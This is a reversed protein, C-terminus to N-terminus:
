WLSTIPTPENSQLLHKLGTRPTQVTQPKNTHYDLIWIFRSTWLDVSSRTFPPILYTYPTIVGLWCIDNHYGPTQFHQFHQRRASWYWWITKIMNVTWNMDMYKNNNNKKINKKPDFKRTRQIHFLWWLSCIRAHLNLYIEWTFDPRRVSNLGPFFLTFLTTQVRKNTRTQLESPCRTFPLRIVM